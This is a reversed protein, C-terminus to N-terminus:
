HFLINTTHQKVIEICVAGVTGEVEICLSKYPSHSRDWFKFGFYSTHQKIKRLICYQLKSIVVEILYNFLGLHELIM